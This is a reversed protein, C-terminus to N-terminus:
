NKKKKDATVCMVVAIFMLVCGILEKKSLSVDLLLYGAFVSFLSELSLILSATTEDLTKQAYAQLSVGIAACVIGVYLLPLIAQRYAIINFQEKSLLAGIFSFLGTFLSIFMSLEISDVDGCYKSLILIQVSLCLSCIITLVDNLKITFNSIDCLLVLGSVAFVLSIIVQPNIKKKFFVFSLFPVEIIYMSTIFGTKGPANDLAVVQQLYSFLTLDIAIIAGFKLAKKINNSKNKRILCIILLSVFAIINKAVNFSFAPVYQAGMSQASYSFGFILSVCLILLEDIHERM